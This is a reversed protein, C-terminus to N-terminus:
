VTYSLVTRSGKIKIAIVQHFWKSPPTDRKFRELLRKARSRETVRKVQILEVPRNPDFAIVDYAGHSGATRAVSYGKERWAQMVEYELRRGAVYNKNM